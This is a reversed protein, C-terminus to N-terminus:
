SVSSCGTLRLRIRLNILPPHHNLTYQEISTTDEKMHLAANSLQSTRRNYEIINSDDGVVVVLVM